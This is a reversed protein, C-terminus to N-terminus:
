YYDVAVAVVVEFKDVVEKDDGVVVIVVEIVVVAIM